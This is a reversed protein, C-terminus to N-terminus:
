RRQKLLWRYLRADAYARTWVDHGADPYITLKPKGGFKRLARVLTRSESAPVAKDKAGHFAWVPTYRLGEVRDPFGLMDEYGGCVPVVAAFREPHLSGLYWAGYGGLSMGTLYVRSRDVAHTRMVEDLLLLLVDAQLIWTSNAPCQPSVAIFPFTPERAAVKPIGHRAVCQVNAGCEDSGHLFLILPHSRKRSYGLPLHLLYDLALRRTIRKSFTRATQTM